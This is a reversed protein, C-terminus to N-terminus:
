SRARHRRRLHRGDVPTVGISTLAILAVAACIAGWVNRPSRVEAAGGGQRRLPLLEGWGIFIAWILVFASGLTVAAWTAVGGM